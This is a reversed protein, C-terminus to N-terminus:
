NRGVSSDDNRRLGPGVVAQLEARLVQHFVIM